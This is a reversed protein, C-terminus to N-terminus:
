DGASLTTAHAKQVLEQIAQNETQRFEDPTGQFVLGGESLFAIRDATRMVSSVDHSVLLTTVGLSERLEVILSDITYTTIPDLGTTPEDYLMVKPEVAIARAIGVRKRMGGSLESPMKSESGTLGVRELAMEALRKQDKVSLKHTRRVGFLVNEEVNMYDFLAASQFVMGMRRRAQEPDSRVNVGDVVVEGESPQVLGSICRLLTTKGGGSSGMIAVIEGSEVQLDIQKLVTNSGFRHALSRVGVV